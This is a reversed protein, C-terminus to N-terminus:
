PAAGTVKLANAPKQGKRMAMLISAAIEPHPVMMIQYRRDPRSDPLDKFEGHRPVMKDPLILFTPAQLYTSRSFNRWEAYDDAEKFSTTQTCHVINEMHDNPNDEQDRSYPHSVIGYGSTHIHGSVIIDAFPDQFRALRMQAHAQNYMSQGKAAHRVHMIIDRGVDPKQLYIRAADQFAAIKFKQRLHDLVGYDLTNATWADHNGGAIVLLKKSIPELMHAILDQSEAATVGQKAWLRSLNGIWGDVLDGVFAAYLGDTKRVIDVYKQFKGINTGHNDIHVDGFTTIGIPGKADLKIQFTTRRTLYAAEERFMQKRAEIVDEIKRHPPDSSPFTLEKTAM